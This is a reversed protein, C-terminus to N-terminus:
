EVQAASGSFRITMRDKSVGDVSLGHSSLWSSITAIDAPAPGFKEGVEEPTLWQHYNPSTADYQSAVFSDFAFQQEPSRRLVLVLGDMLMAPGVRGRDNRAIAAPPTNGELKVLQGENVKEVILPKTASSQALASTQAYSLATSLCVLAFCRLVSKHVPLM